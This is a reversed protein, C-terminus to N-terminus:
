TSSHRSAKRRYSCNTYRIVDFMYVYLSLKGCHSTFYIEANRASNDQLIAKTSLSGVTSTLSLVFVYQVLDGSYAM